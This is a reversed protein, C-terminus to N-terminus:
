MLGLVSGVFAYTPLAFARGSERGGRLNVVTLAAVCGLSLPVAAGLLGPAPFTVADVGAAISVAVTLVYDVLLASAAALGADLGLNTKAVVYAAGGNPYAACTQRYSAVVTVLLAVVALALWPTLGLLAVGGLGLVLVMQETAYAVSSLPDSCFVPLALRKALLTEPLQGSALPPGVVLRKAHHESMTM